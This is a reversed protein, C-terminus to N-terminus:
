IGRGEDLSADLDPLTRSPLEAPNSRSSVYKLSLSLNRGLSFQFISKMLFGPQLSQSKM